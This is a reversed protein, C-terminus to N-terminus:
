MLSTIALSISHGRRRGWGEEEGVGGGGWGVEEGEKEGGQRRGWREEEGVGGKLGEEGSRGM